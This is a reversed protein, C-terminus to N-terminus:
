EAIRWGSAPSANPSRAADYAEHFTAFPTEAWWWYDGRLEFVEYATWGLREVNEKIHIWRIDTFGGGIIPAYKTSHVKKMGDIYTTKLKELRVYRMLNGKKSREIYELVELM